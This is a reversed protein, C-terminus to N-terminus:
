VTVVCKATKCTITATGKAVATVKGAADVKANSSAWSKAYSAAGSPALTTKLAATKGKNLTLKTSSLKVAAKVTITATGGAKATIKGTSNM